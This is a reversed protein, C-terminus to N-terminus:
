MLSPEKRSKGAKNPVPAVTTAKAAKAVIESNPQTEVMELGFLAAVDDEVLVRDEAAVPRSRGLIASAKAIRDKADVGRLVFLLVAPRVTHETDNPLACLATM